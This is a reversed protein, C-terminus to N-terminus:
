SVMLVPVTGIKLIRSTTSGIIYKDYFGKGTKTMIIVDINEKDVVNMIDNVISSKSAPISIKDVEYEPILDAAIDLIKNSADIVAKPDGFEAIALDYTEMINLLTVSVDKSHFLSKLKNLSEFTKQSNDLPILIRKKM